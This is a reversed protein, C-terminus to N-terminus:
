DRTPRSWRASAWARDSPRASSSRSCSTHSSSLPTPSSTPGRRASGFHSRPALVTRATGRPRTAFRPPSTPRTPGGSSRSPSLRPPTPAWAPCRRAHPSSQGGGWSTSWPLSSLSAAHSTSWRGPSSPSSSCSWVSLSSYCPPSPGRSSASSSSSGILSSTSLSPSTATRGSAYASSRAGSSRARGSGALSTPTSSPASLPSACPASRTPSRSACGVLARRAACSSTSSPSYCSSSTFPPSSCRHWTPLPTSYALASLQQRPSTAM